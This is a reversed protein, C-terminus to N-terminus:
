RGKRDLFSQLIITAAVSDIVKKRKKRSTDNTLLINEAEVTSLREDQMFV